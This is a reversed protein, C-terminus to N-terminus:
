ITNPGMNTKAWYDNQLQVDNYSIAHGVKNLLAVIEKSALLHHIGMLLM